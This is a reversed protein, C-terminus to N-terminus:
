YCQGGGTLCPLDYGLLPIWWPLGALVLMAVLRYIGKATGEYRQSGAQSLYILGRFGMTWGIFVLVVVSACVILQAPDNGSNGLGMYTSSTLTVGIFSCSLLDFVFGMSMLAVGFIALSFAYGQGHSWMGRESGSLVQFLASILFVFGVLYAIYTLIVMMPPVSDAIGKLVGVAEVGFGLADLDM